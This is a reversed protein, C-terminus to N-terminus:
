NTLWSLKDLGWWEEYNLPPYFLRHTAGRLSVTVPFFLLVIEEAGYIGELDGLSGRWDTSLGEDMNGVM